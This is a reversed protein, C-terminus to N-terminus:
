VNVGVVPNHAAFLVIFMTTFGETTGVNVCCVGKHWFLAAGVKGVVDLLPIEPVQDDGILVAETPFV